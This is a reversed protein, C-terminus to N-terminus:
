IYKYRKFFYELYMCQYITLQKEKIEELERKKVANNNIKEKIDMFSCIIFILLFPLFISFWNGNSSSSGPDNLNIAFTKCQTIIIYAFLLINKRYKDINIM